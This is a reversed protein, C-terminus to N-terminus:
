KDFNALYVNLFPRTKLLFRFDTWFDGKQTKLSRIEDCM